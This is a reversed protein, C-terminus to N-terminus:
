FIREVRDVSLTVTEIVNENQNGRKFDSTVSKRVWCGIWLEAKVAVGNAGMQKFVVNRKYAEPLGGTGTQTSQAQSMWDFAWRDGAPAMTIKRLEADSVAVGGATKVDYNFAGHPVAGIEVEPPKVEQLLMQDIGEIEIVFNFIKNAM